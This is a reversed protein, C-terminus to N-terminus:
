RLAMESSSTCSLFSILEIASRVLKLPNDSSFFETCCSILVEEVQFSPADIPVPTLVVIELMVILFAATPVYSTVIVAVAIAMLAPIVVPVVTRWDIEVDVIEAPSVASYSKSSSPM